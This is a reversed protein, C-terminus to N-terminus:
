YLAKLGTIDGKGLTRQYSSCPRSTPYMTQPVHTVTADTHALGFAHGREHAVVGQLDFLNFCGTKDPTTTWSATKQLRIDAEAISWPGGTSTSYSCALGLHGPPLAGFDVVNKGDFTCDIEGGSFTIGTSKKTKGKYPSTSAVPDPLGCDNRGNVIAQTGAKIHTLAKDATFVRTPTSSGKFFWPQANAVRAQSDHLHYNTDVCPDLCGAVGLENCPAPATAGGFFTEEDSSASGEVSVIGELSTTIALESEGRVGLAAASVGRGPPPIHLTISGSSVSRGVLGCRDADVHAPLIAARLTGKAGPCGTPHVRATAGASLAQVAMVTGIVAALLFGARPTRPASHFQFSLTM